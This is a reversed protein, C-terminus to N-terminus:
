RACTSTSIPPAHLAAAREARRHRRAAARREAANLKAWNKQREKIADREHSSDHQVLFVSNIMMLGGAAALRRMRADDLNRPHDYIARPGSHSAIIPVRSLALMQDFAADSSHSADIIIGLRNM